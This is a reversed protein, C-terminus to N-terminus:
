YEDVHKRVRHEKPTLIQAILDLHLLQQYFQVREENELGSLKENPVLTTARLLSRNADRQLDSLGDSLSKIIDESTTSM